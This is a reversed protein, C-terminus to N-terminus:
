GRGPTFSGGGGLGLLARVCIAPDYDVQWQRHNITQVAALCGTAREKELPPPPCPCEFMESVDVASFTGIIACFKKSHSLTVAPIKDVDAGQDAFILKRACAKPTLQVNRATVRVFIDLKNKEKKNTKPNKKTQKKKPKGLTLRSFTWIKM